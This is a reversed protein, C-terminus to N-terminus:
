VCMCVCACTCLEGSHDSGIPFLRVHGGLHVTPECLSAMTLACVRMCMGVHVYLGKYVNVCVCVFACVCVCVYVSM